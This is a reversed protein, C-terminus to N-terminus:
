IVEREGVRSYNAIANAIRSEVRYRRWPKQMLVTVHVESEGTRANDKAVSSMLVPQFGAAAHKNIQEHFQDDVKGGVIIINAM